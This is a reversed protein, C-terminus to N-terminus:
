RRGRHGEAEDIGAIRDADDGVGNAPLGPPLKEALGDAGPDVLDGVFVATREPHLYVGSGDQRYGLEVLLAKLKTACGHIDGIIDYGALQKEM